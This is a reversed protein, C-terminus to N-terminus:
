NTDYDRIKRDWKVSLIYDKDVIKFIDSATTEFDVRDNVRMEKVNGLKLSPFEKVLAKPYTGAKGNFKIEGGIDMGLQGREELLELKHWLYNEIKAYERKFEPM